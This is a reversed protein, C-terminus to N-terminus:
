EALGLRLSQGSFQSRHVACGSWLQVTVRHLIGLSLNWRTWNIAAGDRTM